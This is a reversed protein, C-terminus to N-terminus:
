LLSIVLLSSLLTHIPKDPMNLPRVCYIIEFSRWSAPPADLGPGRGPLVLVRAKSARPWCGCANGSCQTVLATAPHCFVVVCCLLARYVSFFHYKVYRNVYNQRFNHTCKIITFGRFRYQHVSFLKRITSVIYVQLVFKYGQDTFGPWAGETIDSTESDNIHTRKKTTTKKKEDSLGRSGPDVTVM